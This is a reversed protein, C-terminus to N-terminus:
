PRWSGEAGGEGRAGVHGCAGEQLSPEVPLEVRSTVELTPAILGCRGTSARDADGVVALATPADIGSRVGGSAGEVDAGLAESLLREGDEDLAYRNGQAWVCVVGPRGGCSSTSTGPRGRALTSSEECSPGEGLTQATRCGARMTRNRALKQAAPVEQWGMDELSAPGVSADPEWLTEVARLPDDAGKRRSATESPPTMFCAAVQDGSTEAAMGLSSADSPAPALATSAGGTAGGM